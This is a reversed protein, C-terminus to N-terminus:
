RARMAPRPDVLARLRARWGQRRRAEDGVQRALGQAETVLAPDGAAGAPSWTARTVLDALRALDPAAPGVVAATRRAYETDTEAPARPGVMPATADVADVADAWAARVRAPVGPARRRRRRRAARLAALVLVDLVVVGAVVAVTSATVAAPGADLVETVVAAPGSGDDGDPPEPPGPPPVADAELRPRATSPVTGLRPDTSGAGPGGTAGPATTTTTSPGDGEDQAPRVGTYADTGPQGRGPTPEFPVWGAGPIFVEPWAHANRGRVTFTTGAQDAQGPTFGVAVRAPLGLSRAMAAFTGAFQECYGRGAALFAEIATGDHGGGVGALDYTFESRFWDQLARALAYPTPPVGATVRRATAAVEPALGPPLQTAEALEDSLPDPLPARLDAPTFRPVRSRVTYRARDSDPLDGQVILTALSGNWRLDISSSEMDVPTLAAPAWITGLDRITFAQVLDETAAEPPHTPLTGDAKSFDESRLSWVEGDFRDLSTLRWYAPREARVQFVVTNSQEVLRSRIDVLPSITTRTSTPDGDRWDVLADSRAGPLHPAAVGAVSAAVLAVAAGARALAAGGVAARGAVWTDDTVARATRQALAFGLTTAALAAAAPVSGPGRGLLATFVFLAGAPLVAEATARLRFAAWDSLSVAVWIAVTAALLFGRSSPAPAKVDGFLDWARGLDDGARALTTGTPLGALSVHPYLVVSVQLVLASLALGTTALAGLGRRRTAASIAHAAVAAVALPLVAGDDSFLRTFGAVAVLTVLALLVEAPVLTRGRTRAQGGAPRV